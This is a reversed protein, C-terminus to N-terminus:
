TSGTTGLNRDRKERMDETEQKSREKLQDWESQKRCVNEPIRSGTVRERRCVRRDKKQEAKKKAKAARKEAKRAEKEARRAEKAAKRAEKKSEAPVQADGDLQALLPTGNGASALPALALMFLLGIILVSLRMM